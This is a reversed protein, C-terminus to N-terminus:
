TKLNGWRYFLDATSNTNESTEVATFNRASSLAEALAQEGGVTKVQLLLDSGNMDKIRVSTVPMLHRVASIVKAYDDLDMVNNVDLVVSTQLNKDDVVALQNAMLNAMDNIAQSLLAASSDATNRWRYPAGNMLLMWQGQWKSGVQQVNGALVAAAAYRQAAQQLLSTDFKEPDESVFAQDELDMAPMLVPVGRAKAAKLLAQSLPLNVSNSLIEPEADGQMQVWVLTLPRDSSWDAQGAKALLQKLAKRDFTIQLLLQAQGDSQEQNRYGYSQIMTNADGLANQVIPVTMIAPNGSMKVLVQGLAKPLAAERAAESTNDIPLTTANLGSVQVAQVGGAILLLVSFVLYSLYKRM